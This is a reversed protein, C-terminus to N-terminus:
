KLLQEKKRNFEAETIVGEDLLEKYTLLEDLPDGSHKVMVSNQKIPLTIIKGFRILIALIVSIVNLAIIIYFMWSISYTYRYSIKEVSAMDCTYILFLVMTATYVISVIWGNKCIMSQYDLAKLLYIIATLLTICFLVIALVKALPTDIQFINIDSRSTLTSMGHYVISKKYKWYEQSICFPTFYCIGQIISMIVISINIKKEM